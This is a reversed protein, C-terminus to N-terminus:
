ALSRIYTRLAGLADPEEAARDDWVKRVSREVTRPGSLDLRSPLRNLVKKGRVSRWLSEADERTAEYLDMGETFAEVLDDREPPDELRDRYETALEEPGHELPWGKEHLYARAERGPDDLGPCEIESRKGLWLGFHLDAVEQLPELASTYDLDLRDILSEIAPPHLFLNEVEHVDLVFVGHEGEIEEVEDDSRFDRDIVGGIPIDEGSQEALDRLENVRRIVSDCNGAEIYKTKGIEPTLSDFRDRERGSNGGEIYVFCTNRLSFAPYGLAKALSPVVPEEEFSIADTVPGRGAERQLLFTSQKGTAEAAELSHTSLWVQGESLTEGLYTVWRRILDPNLHLEPEDLLILGRDMDFRIIQGILFAIEQEGGSLQAFRLPTGHSSFRLETNGRDIGRFRLHPLIEHLEEQYEEFPDEYVPEERGEQRAERIRDALENNHQQEWAVFERVWDSYKQLSSQHARAQIYELSRIDTDLLQAVDRGRINQKEYARNSDLWLFHLDESNKLKSRIATGVRTAKSIDEIGGAVHWTDTNGDWRLSGWRLTGDWDEVSEGLDEELQDVDVSGGGRQLEFVIDFFHNEATPDTREIGKGHSLGIAHAAEHLVELINTKGTGNDGVLCVPNSNPPVRIDM